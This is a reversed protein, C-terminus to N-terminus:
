RLLLMKRTITHTGSIVKYFYIGSSVVSGSDDRADWVFTHRGAPFRDNAVVRVKRGLLDYIELSVKQDSTNEFTIYTAPNFPNPFNQEVIIEGPVAHALFSVSEVKENGTRDSVSILFVIEDEEPAVTNRIVIESTM